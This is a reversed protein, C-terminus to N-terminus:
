VEEKVKPRRGTKPTAVCRIRQRWRVQNKTDEELLGLEKIDEKISDMFRRKPRGRQRRGLPQMGLIRQRVCTEERRRVHGYWWRLRWERAKEGFRRVGLVERVRKNRVKDSRTLGLTFRLMSMEAVEFKREQYKSVPVTEMGYLMAPRVCTRYVKGKVRLSMNRDCLVGSVKRWGNWGAQIRKKVETNYGGESNIGSGLYKFENVKNIERGKMAIICNEEGESVCM